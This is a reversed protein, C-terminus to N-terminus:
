FHRSNHWEILPLTANGMTGPTARLRHALLITMGFTTHRRAFRPARLRVARISELIALHLTSLGVARHETRRVRAFPFLRQVALSRLAGGSTFLWLAHQITSAALQSALRHARTRLALPLALLRRRARLRLASHLALHSGSAPFVCHTDRWRRIPHLRNARDSRRLSRIVFPDDTFPVPAGGATASSILCSMHFAVRSQIM